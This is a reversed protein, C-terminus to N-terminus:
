LGGNRAEFRMNRSRGQSIRLGVITGGENRDFELVPIFWRDSTFEDELFPTLAIEGHRQHVAVLGGDQVRLWYSTDLEESYFEGTFEELDIVRSSLPVVRLAHIGRYTLHDVVSSSGRGFTM